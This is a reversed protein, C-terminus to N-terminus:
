AARRIVIAGNDSQLQVSGDPGTHTFLHGSPQDDFGPAVVAGNTSSAAITEDNTASVTIAGNVTTLHLSTGAPVTIRWSANSDSSSLMVRDGADTMHGEGTSVRATPRDGFDVIISGNVSNVWLTKGVLDPLDVSKSPVTPLIKPVFLQQRHARNNDNNHALLSIVAVAVFVLGAIRLPGPLRHAGLLLVGAVVVAAPVIWGPSNTMAHTVHAGLQTVGIIALIVAPISAWSSRHRPDGFALYGFGCAAGLTGLADGTGGSILDGVTNGLGSGALVVGIVFLPYHDGGGSRVILFIGILLPFVSVGHGVINHLMYSAGLGILLLPILPTRGYTRVSSGHGRTPSRDDDDHWTVHPLYPDGPM